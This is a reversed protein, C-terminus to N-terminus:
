RLTALERNVSAVSLPRKYRSHTRTRTNKYVDISEEEIADLKSNSFPAHALLKGLKERYFGITKPKEACQTEIAEMFRGSFEALTPVPKKKEIGVEGKALETKRASQIQEATRKNTTNASERIRHNDFVFEFWWVGGRKYLSM